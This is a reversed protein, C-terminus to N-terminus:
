CRSFALGTSGNRALGAKWPARLNNRHLRRRALARYQSEKRYRQHPESQPAPPPAPPLIAEAVPHAPRPAVNETQLVIGHTKLAQELLQVRSRLEAIQEDLSGPTNPDM